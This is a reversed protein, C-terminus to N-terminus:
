FKEIQNKWVKEVLSDLFIGFYKLHLSPNNLIQNSFLLDIQLMKEKMFNEKKKEIRYM